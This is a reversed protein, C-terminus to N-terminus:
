LGLNKYGEGAKCHNLLYSHVQHAQIAGSIPIEGIDGILVPWDLSDEPIRGHSGRVLMADLPIVDMLMRMGLKKAILKRGIKLMPFRIAPDLFLEVPDYGCKRHIDVCRAFYPAMADDLVDYYSFLSRSDAVVVLDGSRPHDIRQLFKEQKGMVQQVGPTSQLLAHVENTL